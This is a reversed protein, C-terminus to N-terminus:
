KMKKCDDMIKQLKEIKQLLERREKKKLELAAAKGPVCAGTIRRIEEDLQKIKQNIRYIDVECKRITERNIANIEAATSRKKRPATSTRTAPTITKKVAPAAAKRAPASQAAPKRAASTARNMRVRVSDRTWEPVEMRMEKIMGAAAQQMNGRMMDATEYM